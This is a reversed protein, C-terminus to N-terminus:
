TQLFNGQKAFTNDNWFTNVFTNIEKSENSAKNCLCKNHFHNTTLSFEPFKNEM